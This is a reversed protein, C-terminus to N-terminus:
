AAPPPALHTHIWSLGGLDFHHRGRTVAVYALRADTDSVPEPIPRGHADLQDTDKRHQLAFHIRFADQPGLPQPQQVRRHLHYPLLEHQLAM